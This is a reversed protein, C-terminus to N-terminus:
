CSYVTSRENRCDPISQFEQLRCRYLIAFLKKPLRFVWAEYPHPPGRVRQCSARKVMEKELKGQANVKAKKKTKAEEMEVLSNYIDMCLSEKEHRGNNDNEFDYEVEGTKTKHDNLSATCTYEQM